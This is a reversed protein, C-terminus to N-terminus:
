EAVPAPAPTPAAPRPPLSAVANKVLVVLLGIGAFLGLVVFPETTSADPFYMADRVVTAGAGPPLLQGVVRGATPLM